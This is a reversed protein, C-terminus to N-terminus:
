RVLLDILRALVKATRMDIDFRPNLEACDVICLKGSDRAIQVIAEVVALPVGGAAPASVGPAVAAPLADLCITLYLVDIAKLWHTLAELAQAANHSQLQHDEQWWVGLEQARAFLAQTNSGRAVGLCAYIFPWARAECDQAIQRFPTGSSAIADARLDFHADINVIGVRQTQTAESNAQLHAALGIWSAWAVEHGGGITIPLRGLDLEQTIRRALEAQAAELEADPCLVDGADFVERAGAHWAINQLAQRALAPGEAAGVRGQNRAVGADCCFGLLSIPTPTQKPALGASAGDYRVRQHWRLALPGEAADIRGTWPKAPQWHSM